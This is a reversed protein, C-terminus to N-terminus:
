QAESYLSVHPRFAAKNFITMKDNLDFLEKNISLNYLYDTRKLESSNINHTEYWNSLNKILPNTSISNKCHFNVSVKAIYVDFREYDFSDYVFQNSHWKFKNRSRFINYTCRIMKREAIRCREMQYSSINSPNAWIPAAYGLIPRLYLTYLLRKFKVNILQSFLLGGLAKKANNFKALAKDIHANFRNNASFVIGLYKIHKKPQIVVNNLKILMSKIAKRKHPNVQKCSGVFHILETKHENLLFKWTCYWYSLRELYANFKNEIGGVRAYSISISTDDAFQLLDCEVSRPIDYNNINFLLPGLVSGQPVGAPIGKRESLCNGIKVRFSRNKLFNSIIFILYQPFKLKTLKFLIADHWVTDFAAKVDLCVM